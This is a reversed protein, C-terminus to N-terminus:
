VQPPEEVEEEAGAAEARDQHRTSDETVQRGRGLAWLRPLRHASVLLPAGWCPVLQRDGAERRAAERDVELRHGAAAEQAEPPYGGEVAKEAAQHGDVEAESRHGDVKAEAQLPDERLLAWLAQLFLPRIM